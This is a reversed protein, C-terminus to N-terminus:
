YFYLFLKPILLYNIRLKRLMAFIQLMQINHIMSWFSAVSTSTTLNQLFSMWFISLIIWMVMTRLAQATTSNSSQATTSNSNQAVKPTSVQIIWAGSTQTYGSNWTAWVSSSSSSWIQCNQVQCKYITLKILKQVLNSVGSIISTVYFDFETDTSVSPATISLVGTNPNISVWSPATSSGYNSISNLKIM